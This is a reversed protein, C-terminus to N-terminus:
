DAIVHDMGQGQSRRVRWGKWDALFQPGFSVEITAELEARGAAGLALHLRAIAAFAGGHRGDIIGTIVAGATSM